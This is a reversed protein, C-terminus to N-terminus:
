LYFRDVVGRTVQLITAWGVLHDVKESLAALQILHSLVILSM